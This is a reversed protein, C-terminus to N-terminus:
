TTTKDGFRVRKWKERLEVYIRLLGCDSKMIKAIACQQSTYTPIISKEGNRTVCNQEVPEHKFYLAGMVAWRLCIAVSISAIKGSYLRKGIQLSSKKVIYSVVYNVIILIVEDNM